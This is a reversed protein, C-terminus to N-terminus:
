SEYRPMFVSMSEDFVLVHSASIITKKRHYNHKIILNKLQWWDVESDRMMHDRM